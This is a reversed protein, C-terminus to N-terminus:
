CGTLARVGMKQCDQQQEILTVRRRSRSKPSELFFTPPVGPERTAM